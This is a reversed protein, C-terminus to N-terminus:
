WAIRQKIWQCLIRDRELEGRLRDGLEEVETPTWDPLRLVRAYRRHLWEKVFAKREPVTWLARAGIATNCERCVDVELFPFKTALDPTALIFSRVSRPPVHDITDAPSGCYTCPTVVVDDDLSAAWARYRCTDSCYRKGPRYKFAKACHTCQTTKM